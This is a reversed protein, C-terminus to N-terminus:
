DRDAAARGPPCAIDGAAVLVVAAPRPAPTSSSRASTAAVFSPVGPVSM